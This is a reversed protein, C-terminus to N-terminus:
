ALKTLIYSFYIYKNSVFQNYTESGITGSFNLAIKNLFKPTLKKVLSRKRPDDLELATIVEKNINREKVVKLGSLELQKNLEDMEYDYRFDTFLFHGGSRLTRYVEELFSEMDLYRHSSEVNLIIDCSENTLTIARKDLEIGIASTPKFTKTLFNLGGGRGSGIEVIDKDKISIDSTFHAYLQISYRDMEDKQDLTIEQDDSSYGYNMFLVEANKDVKNVYFYWIKFLRERINFKIPAM